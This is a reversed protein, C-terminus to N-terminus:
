LLQCPFSPLWNDTIEKAADQIASEWPNDIPDYVAIAKVERM